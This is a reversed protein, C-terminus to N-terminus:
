AENKLGSSASNVRLGITAATAAPRPRNSQPVILEQIFWCATTVIVDTCPPMCVSLVPPNTRRVVHDCCPYWEVIATFNHTRDRKYFATMFPFVLSVVQVKEQSLSVVRTEFGTEYCIAISNYFYGNVELFALNTKVVTSGNMATTGIQAGLWPSRNCYVHLIVVVM